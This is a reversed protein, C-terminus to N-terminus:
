KVLRGGKSAWVIFAEILVQSDVILPDVMQEDSFTLNFDFFQASTPCYFRQWIQNGEQNFEANKQTTFVSNYFDDDNGVNIPISDVNDVRIECTIEGDQTAETLFDLYGFYGRKGENMLNFKKSRISMNFVREIEGLGLYDGATLTVPQFIGNILEFLTFNDDDIKNIRYTNGNLSSGNGLIGSIRVFEESQMNHDPVTLQVPTGPTIATIYLSNSNNVTQNRPNFIFVYGQQNGAATNPFQSQQTSSNWKVIYQQWTVQSLDSWRIDTNRQWPGFCTFSDTFIAWVGNEYDYALLRDPFTTNNDAEPFTWYVYRNYFDRVGYVRFPGDNGNHIRFVEDPIKDDIAEVSNGNCVNISKDGISLVGKDFPVVSFTSECGLERNIREWVFPTLENGTYRLKWSSREFQVILTDRVFEASVISEAIPCDIFSGRGAIDSRWANVLDTPDGIQSWRARQPFQVAGGLTAGEYTNLAVLRGRYQVLIRAQQLRTTVPNDLAPNFPTVWNTGDFYRIPDGTTFNTAFFLYNNTGALLVNTTWFFDSNGGTWTVTGLQQFQETVINYRYAYITDFAILQEENITGTEYPRLGMVPLTPYYSGTFTVNASGVAANAIITVIGTAYNITASQIPGADVVTLVGSGLIDTLSQSIPAAFTITINSINGPVLNANPENAAIGLGTFLDFTNTGDITSYTGAAAGTLDRRLRGLLTYGARRRIRGRFNFANVLSQFSDNTLNFAAKDNVLGGQAYSIAIPSYQPM